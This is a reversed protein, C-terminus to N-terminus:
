RDGGLRVFQCVCSGVYCCIIICSCRKLAEYLKKFTLTRYALGGVFLAYVTAVLAAETPTFAGSYIGGLIVVPTLLGWFSDRFTSWLRKKYSLNTDVLDGMTALCLEDVKGTKAGKDRGLPLTLIM